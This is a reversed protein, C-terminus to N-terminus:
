ANTWVLSDILNTVIYQCVFLGQNNDLVLGGSNTWEITNVTITDIKFSDSHLVLVIMSSIGGVYDFTEIWNDYSGDDIGPRSFWDTFRESENFGEMNGIIQVRHIVTMFDLIVLIIVLVM